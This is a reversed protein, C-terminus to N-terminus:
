FLIKLLIKQKTINDILCVIRSIGFIKNTFGTFPLYLFVVVVPIGSLPIEIKPSYNLNCSIIILRLYAQYIETFRSLNGYYIM